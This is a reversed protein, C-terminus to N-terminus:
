TGPSSKSGTRVKKVISPPSLSNAFKISGVEFANKSARLWFTDQLLCYSTAQTLPAGFHKKRECFQLRRTLWFIPEVEMTISLMFCHRSLFWSKRSLNRLANVWAFWSWGIPHKKWVFCKVVTVFTQSCKECPRFECNLAKRCFTVKLAGYGDDMIQLWEFDSM